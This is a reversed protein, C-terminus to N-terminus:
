ISCHCTGVKITVLASAATPMTLNQVLWVPFSGNFRNDSLDLSTNQGGKSTFVGVQVLAEPVAGLM